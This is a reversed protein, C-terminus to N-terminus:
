ISISDEGESFALLAGDSSRALHRLRTGRYLTTERGRQVDRSRLEADGYLYFVLRGDKSWVGEFGRFSVGTESVLPTVAGTKTDVLFLGARGKNDSGSVLLSSGDPSARLRELHALKPALEREEDSDLSRIVIM